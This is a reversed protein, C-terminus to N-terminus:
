DSWREIEAAVGVFPNGSVFARYWAPGCTGGDLVKYSILGPRNSRIEHFEQIDISCDSANNRQYESVGKELKALVLATAMVGPGPVARACGLAILSSIFLLIFHRM